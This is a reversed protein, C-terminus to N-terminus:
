VFKVETVRRIPIYIGKKLIIREDTLGWVTTEVQKYGEKDLFVIKVKSKSGNGLIMAKELNARREAIKQKDALVEEKPFACMPIQEKQISIVSKVEM